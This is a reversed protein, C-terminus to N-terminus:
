RKAKPAYVTWPKKKTSDVLRRFAAPGALESLKGHFGLQGAEFLKLLGDRYKAAFVRSLARVPFLFSAQPSRIFEKGRLVGAPIIAHLHFHDMLEQNWTHLM